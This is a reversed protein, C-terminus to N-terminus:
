VEFNESISLIITRELFIHFFECSVTQVVLEPEAQREVCYTYNLLMIVKCQPMEPTPLIIYTVIVM